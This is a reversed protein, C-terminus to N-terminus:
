RKKVIELSDYIALLIDKEKQWNFEIRAKSGNSKLSNYYEEDNLFKNIATDITKHDLDKILCAVEYLENIARYEPFDMCIMPTCAHMYDFFKNALSYYYNLSKSDLLNIGLWSRKTLEALDDPTVFGLFDVQSEMNLNSVLTRLKESLEGEGALKLKIQPYNKLTSILEELGRGKNLVGQYFIFKEESFTEAEDFKRLLPVNRVVKFKKDYKKSLERAISQNVTYCVDFKPVTMKGIRNWVSKIFPRHIIEPLETFLEHSDFIMKVKWFRSYFYSAVSTDLDISCIAAPRKMRLYFFLRLNYEAYFLFKKNFWCRLRHVPFAFGSLPISNKKVRGVLQIQYGDDMLSDCIRIMRQDYTLDNTVSFIILGKIKSAM